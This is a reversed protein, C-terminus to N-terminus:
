GLAQVAEELSYFEGWGHFAQAEELFRFAIYLPNNGEIRRAKVVFGPHPDRVFWLAQPYPDYPDSEGAGEVTVTIRAKEKGM